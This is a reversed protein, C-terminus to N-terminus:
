SGTGEAGQAWTSLSAATGAQVLVEWEVRRKAGSPRPALHGPASNKRWAACCSGTVMPGERGWRWVCMGGELVGVCRTKNALIRMAGVCLPAVAGTRAWPGALYETSSCPSCCCAGFLFSTVQPPPSLPCPFPSSGVARPSIPYPLILFPLRHSPTEIRFALGTGM